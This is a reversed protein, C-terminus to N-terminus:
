RRGWLTPILRVPVTTELPTWGRARIVDNSEVPRRGRARDLSWTIHYTSGDPRDTTGAIEVVMAEVGDGDDARGVIRGETEPPLAVGDGVRAALTVHDADVHEYAPPFRDLLRVREARDLKWGLVKSGSRTRAGRWAAAADISDSNPNAQM